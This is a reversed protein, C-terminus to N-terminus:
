AAEVLEEQRKAEQIPKDAVAYGAEVLAAKLANVQEHLGLPM